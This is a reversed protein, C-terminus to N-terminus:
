PERGGSRIAPRTASGDRLDLFYIKGDLCPYIVEVMEPDAKKSVYLNMKQKVADPWKVVLPQGTWGSGTWVGGTSREVSGTTVQWLMKLEETTVKVTGYSGGDRYNNGRFTIIGPLDTYHKGADFSIAPSRSYSPLLTSGRYIQTAMKFAAPETSAVPAVQMSLVPETTTTSESSVTVPANRFAIAQVVFM